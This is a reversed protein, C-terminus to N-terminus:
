GEVGSAFLEAEEAEGGPGVEEHSRKGKDGGEEKGDDEHSEGGEEGTKVGGFGLIESEGFEEGGGFAEEAEESEGDEGRDGFFQNKAAPDVGFEAGVEAEDGGEKEGGEGEGENVALEVDANGDEGHAENGAEEAFGGAGDVGGDEEM